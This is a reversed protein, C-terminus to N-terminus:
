QFTLRYASVKHAGEKPIRPVILLGTRYDYQFDVANFTQASIPTATGNADLRWIRDDHVMSFIFAEGDWAVGDIDRIADQRTVPGDALAQGTIRDWIWIQWGGTLLMDRAVYLGNVLNLAPANNILPKLVGSELWYVTNQCSASVYVTGDTAVAVDNLCPRADPAEYRRIIRGTTVDAEVLQNFDAFYLTDGYLAMGTPANLGEMWKEEIMRGSMSLRSIYGQGNLGYGVVNSVYIVGRAEDIAVSEPEFLGEKVTWLHRIVAQEASLGARPALFLAVCLTAFCIYRFM